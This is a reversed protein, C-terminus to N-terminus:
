GHYEFDIEVILRIPGAVALGERYTSSSDSGAPPWAARDAADARTSRIVFESDGDTCISLAPVELRKAGGDTSAFSGLVSGAGDTVEATLTGSFDAAGAPAATAFDLWARRITCGALAATAFVMRFQRSELMWQAMAGGGFVEAGLGVDFELDVAQDDDEGDFQAFADARDQPWSTIGFTLQYVSDQRVSESLTPLVRVCDLRNIAAYLERFLLAYPPSWPHLSNGQADKATLDHSWGGGAFADQCLHPLTYLDGRAQDWWRVPWVLGLMEQVEFQFNAVTPAPVPTGGAPTGRLAQWRFFAHPTQNAPVLAGREVLAQRVENMVFDTDIADAASVPWRNTTWAM